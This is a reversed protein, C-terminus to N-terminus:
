KKKKKIAAIADLRESLTPHSHHYTSYWSDPYFTSLNEVHIKILPESLDYGLETAFEDAQYEFKRSLVNMAFGFAHGLPDYVLSFLILGILRPQSTFGFSSYLEENNIMLSYTYFFFFTQAQSIIINCLPHNKKWHGMEHGLIAVIGETDVQNLLTDYLVIRKNKFFGYFYANSHGSRTSGDVVFLKTLPFQLRDALENIKTRLEGEELPKFDNFLPAIFIPYITIIFFTFALTFLWLWFWFNEGGWEIVKLIAVMLPVGLVVAVGLTKIQDLVFTKWTMKNFGFREEIVFTSYITFPLSTYNYFWYIGIFVLSVVLEQDGEMGLKDYVITESYNWVFPLGGFYLLAVSEFFSFTDKVFSFNSLALKYNQGKEFKKDDVYGELHKPKKKIYFKKHQRYDIYREFVFSVVFFGIIAELFHFPEQPETVPEGM